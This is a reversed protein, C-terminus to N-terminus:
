LAAEALARHRRREGEGERQAGDEEQEEAQEDLVPCAARKGRGLEGQSALSQAEEMYRIPQEAGRGCSEPRTLRAIASARRM